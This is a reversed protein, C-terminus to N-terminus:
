VNSVEEEVTVGAAKLALAMATPETTGVATEDLNECWVTSIGIEGKEFGTISGAPIQGRYQNWIVDSLLWFYQRGDKQSVLRVVAAGSEKPLESCPMRHAKHGDRVVIMLVPDLGGEQAEMYVFVRKTSQAANLVFM